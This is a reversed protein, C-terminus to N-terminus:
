QGGEVQLRDRGCITHEYTRRAYEGEGFLTGGQDDGQRYTFYPVHERVGLVTTNSESGSAGYISYM